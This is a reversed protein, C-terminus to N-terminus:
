ALLRLHHPPLPIFQELLWCLRQDVVLLSTGDSSGVSQLPVTPENPAVLRQASGCGFNVKQRWRLASYSEICLGSVLPEDPPVSRWVLVERNKLWSVILHVSVNM